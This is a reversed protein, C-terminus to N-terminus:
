PLGKVGGVNKCGTKDGWLLLGSHKFLWVAEFDIM